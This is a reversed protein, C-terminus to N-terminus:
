TCFTQYKESLTKLIDKYIDRDDDLIRVFTHYNQSELKVKLQLIEVLRAAREPESHMTNRLDSDNDTSILDESVLSAGLAFLHPQVATRLARTCRLM